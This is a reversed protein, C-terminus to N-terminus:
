KRGMFRYFITQWLLVDFGFKFYRKKWRLLAIPYILNNFITSGIAKFLGGHRKVREPWNWAMLTQYVFFFRVITSITQLQRKKKEEIWTINASDYLEFKAWAELDTPEKFGWDNVVHRFLETGPFPSFVFMGNIRAGNSDIARIKDYVDLTEARDHDTEGPFGIMFSTFSRIESKRCKEISHLINERTIDKKIYRLTKDSGSEGGFEIENFGARRLLDIFVQDYRVFYDFRCEAFFNTKINRAIIETCFKEVRKRNCFFNSDVFYIRKPNYTHIIGEIEEIMVDVPKARWRHHFLSVEACFACRHPCGRSTQYDFDAHTAAYKEMPLLHYPLHTVRNFAPQERDGTFVIEETKNRYAISKISSIERVGRYYEAIEIIVDEGDGKVVIDVLPHAATQEPLISPHTGGFVVPIGMSKAMAACKLAVPIQMSGTMHSVGLFLAGELDSSQLDRVRLDVLRANYGHHILAEALYLINLPIHLYGGKGGCTVLTVSKNEVRQLM